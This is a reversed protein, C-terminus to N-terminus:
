IIIKLLLAIVALWIFVIPIAYYWKGLKGDKWMGESRKRNRELVDKPILKIAVAVLLPLVIVDDLYGLVPIFDPVLDIPSLAYAVTIGAAIKAAAPTEKDKLAFFIAPIDKKLKRAWEKLDMQEDGGTLIQM